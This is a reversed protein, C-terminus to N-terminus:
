EALDKMLGVLSVTRAEGYLSLGAVVCAARAARGRRPPLRADTEAAIGARIVDYDAMTLVIETTEPRCGAARLAEAFRRLAAIMQGNM